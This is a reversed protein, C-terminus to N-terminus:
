SRITPSSPPPASPLRTWKPPGAAELAIAEAHPGGAVRHAGRGVIVGDGDVVLAGVMPNPSTTARGREAMAIAKRMFRADDNMRLAIPSQLVCIASQRIASQP